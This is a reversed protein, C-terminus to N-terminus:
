KIYILDVISKCGNLSYRCFCPKVWTSKALVNTMDWAETDLISAPFCSHVMSSASLDSCSSPMGRRWSRYGSVLVGDKRLALSFDNILANLIRIFDNPIKLLYGMGFWCSILKLPLRISFTTMLGDPTMGSLVVVMVLKLALCDSISSNEINQPCFSMERDSPMRLARLHYM